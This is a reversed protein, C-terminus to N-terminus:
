SVSVRKGDLRLDGTVSVVKSQATETSIGSVKIVQSGAQVCDSQDVIAVRDVAKVTHTDASVEHTKLSARWREVVATFIKGFWSTQEAIVTLVTARIQTSAGRLALHQRATVTVTEGELALNGQGPLALTAYNPGSRELVNLVFIEDGAVAALVRDEAIPRILCGIAIKAPRTVGDIHLEITAGDDTCRVVRAFELGSRTAQASSDAHRFLIRTQRDIMM